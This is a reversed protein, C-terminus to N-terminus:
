ITVAKRFASKRDDNQCISFCGLRIEETRFRNTNYHLQRVQSSLIPGFNVFFLKAINPPTFYTLFYYNQQTRITSTLRYDKMQIQNITTTTMTKIVAVHHSVSQYFNQHQCTSCHQWDWSKKLDKNLFLGNEAMRQSSIM